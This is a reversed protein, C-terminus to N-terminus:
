GPTHTETGYCNKYLTLCTAVEEIIERHPAMQTLISCYLIMCFIMYINAYYVIKM